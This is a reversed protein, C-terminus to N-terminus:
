LETQSRKQKSFDRKNKKHLWNLAASSKKLKKKDTFSKDRRCIQIIAKSALTNKYNKDKMVKFM